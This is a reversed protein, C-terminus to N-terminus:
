RPIRMHVKDHEPFIDFLEIGADFVIDICLFASRFRDANDGPKAGFSDDM